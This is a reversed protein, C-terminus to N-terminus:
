HYSLIQSNRLCGPQYSMLRPHNTQRGLWFSGLRMQLSLPFEELRTNVPANSSPADPALQSALTAARQRINSVKAIFYDALVQSWDLPSEAVVPPPHLLGNVTKWIQRLSKESNEVLTAMHVTRSANRLRTARCCTVRYLVQDVKTGTRVMRRGRWSRYVKQQVHRTPCCFTVLSPDYERLVGLQRWTM